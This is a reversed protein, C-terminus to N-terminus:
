AKKDDEGKAGAKKSRVRREAAGRAGAQLEGNLVSQLVREIPSPPPRGSRVAAGSNSLCWKLAPILKPPSDIPQIALTLKKRGGYARLVRCVLVSEQLAADDDAYVELAAKIVRLHQEGESQPEVTTNSSLWELLERFLDADLSGISEM